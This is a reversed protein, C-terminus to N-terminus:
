SALRWLILLAVVLTAASLAASVKAWLKDSGVATSRDPRAAAPLRAVKSIKAPEAAPAQGTVLAQELIAAFEATVKEAQKLIVKQGVSGLAGALAAEGEVLVRTQGGEPVVQVMNSVRFNGIAGKVAKGTATFCIRDQFARETILVRAEFTASLPGLKQTVRATLTDTDVIAVDEIGPICRAVQEPQEFFMWVKEIPQQVLFSQEFKM